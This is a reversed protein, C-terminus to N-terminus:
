VSLSQYFAVAQAQEESNPHTKLLKELFRFPGYLESGKCCYIGLCRCKKKDTIKKLAKVQDEQPNGATHLFFVDKGKPLNHKAFRRITKHYKLFYIGSAFGIRDYASLDVKESVNADILTVPSVSAIADVLKKTNFYHKSSYVIATKM